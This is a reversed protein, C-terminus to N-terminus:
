LSKFNVHTKEVNLLEYYLVKLEYSTFGKQM